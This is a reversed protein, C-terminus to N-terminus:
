AAVVWEVRGIAKVQATSTKMINPLDDMDIASHDHEVKTIVIRVTITEAADLGLEPIFTADVWTKVDAGFNTWGTAASANEFETRAISVEFPEIKPDTLEAVVPPTYSAPLKHDPLSTTWASSIAM